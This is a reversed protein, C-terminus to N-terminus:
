EPSGISPLVPVTAQVPSVGSVSGGQVGVRQQRQRHREGGRHAVERGSDVGLREGEDRRPRPCYRSQWVAWAKSLRVGVSTQVGGGVPEVAWTVTVAYTFATAAVVRVTLKAGAVLPPPPTGTAPGAPPVPPPLM